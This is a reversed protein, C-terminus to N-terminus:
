RVTRIKPVAQVLDVEVVVKKIHKGIGAVDPIEVVVPLMAPQVVGRPPHPLLQHERAEVTTITGIAVKPVFMGILVVALSIIKVSIGSV